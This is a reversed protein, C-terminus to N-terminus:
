RGCTPCEGLMAEGVCRTGDPLEILMPTAWKSGSDAAAITVLLRGLNSVSLNDLRTTYTYSDITGVTVICSAYHENSATWADLADQVQRERELNHKVDQLAMALVGMVLALAAAITWASLHQGSHRGADWGVSWGRAWTDDLQKRQRRTAEQDLEAENM